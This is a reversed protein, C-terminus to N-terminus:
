KVVTLEVIKYGTDPDTTIKIMTGSKMTRFDIEAGTESTVMADKSIEVLETAVQVGDKMIGLVLKSGKAGLYKVTQNNYFSDIYIANGALDTTVFASTGELVFPSSKGNLEIVVNNSIPLIATEDARIERIVKKYSVKLAAKQEATLPAEFVISTYTKTTLKALKVEDGVVTSDFEGSTIVKFTKTGATVVLSGAVVDVDGIDFTKEDVGTAISDDVEEGIVKSTLITNAPNTLDVNTDSTNIRTDVVMLTNDLMYGLESIVPITSLVGKTQIGIGPIDIHSVLGSKAMFTVTLGKKILDSYNGEGGATTVHTKADLKYTVEKGNELVTVSTDTYKLVIAEKEAPAAMTTPTAAAFSVNGVALVLSLVIPLVKKM